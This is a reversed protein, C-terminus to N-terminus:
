EQTCNDVVTSELTVGKIGENSLERQLSDVNGLTFVKKKETGCILRGETRRGLQCLINKAVRYGRTVFSVKEAPESERMRWQYETLMAYNVESIVDDCELYGYKGWVSKNKCYHVKVGKSIQDIQGPSLDVQLSVAEESSKVRYNAHLM